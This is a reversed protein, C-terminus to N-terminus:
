AQTDKLFQIVEWYYAMAIPMDKTDYDHSFKYAFNPDNAHDLIFRILNRAEEHSCQLRTTLAAALDGHIGM